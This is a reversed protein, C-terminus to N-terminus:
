DRNDEGHGDRKFNIALEQAKEVDFIIKKGIRSVIAKDLVGEKKMSYITSQCCGLQNALEQVGRAYVREKKTPAEENCSNAYRTLQCFEEGSMQWLPKELLFNINIM